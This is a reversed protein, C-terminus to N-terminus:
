CGVEMKMAEMIILTEGEEVKQGPQVLVQAFFYLDDSFKEGSQKYSSECFFIGSQLKNLLNSLLSVFEKCYSLKTASAKALRFFAFFYRRNHLSGM